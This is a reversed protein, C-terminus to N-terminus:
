KIKQNQQQIPPQQPIIEMELKPPVINHDNSNPHSPLSSELIQLQQTMILGEITTLRKEIKEIAVNECKSKESNKLQSFLLFICIISVLLLLTQRLIDGVIVNIKM